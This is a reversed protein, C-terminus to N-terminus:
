RRRRRLENARWEQWEQETNKTMAQAASRLWRTPRQALDRRIAPVARKDGLHVNATEWGMSYLIRAEDRRKPLAALDLRCCNPSLRRVIWRSSLRM